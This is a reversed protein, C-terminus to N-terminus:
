ESLPTAVRRTLPLRGARLGMAVASEMNHNAQPTERAVSAIVPWQPSTAAFQYSEATAAIRAMANKAPEKRQLRAHIRTTANAHHAPSNTSWANLSLGFTASTPAAIISKKRAPGPRTRRVLLRVWAHGVVVVVGDVLQQVAARPQRDHREECTGFFGIEDRDSLRGLHGVAIRAHMQSLELVATVDRHALVEDGAFRLRDVRQCIRSAFRKQSVDRM